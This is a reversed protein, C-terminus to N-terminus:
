ILQPFPDVALIESLNAVTFVRGDTDRVVPGLADRSRRWGLGSLVGFVPVGGLRIAEARLSRFRSAKDRATGGDNAKKCELIARLSDRTDYVVFDPAPRVTLGFRRGIEDQNDSGTRIYLISNLKFIEEVADELVDGRRSGTADLLQRFAGGYHRQHLYVPFPVGDSAFERVSTWGKCTDPKQLRSRIDSGIHPFLSGSMAGNVIRACAYAINSTAPKGEELGKIRGEGIKPDGAYNIMQSAAAFEQRTFGIILRFILLTTSDLTIANAVIDDGMQAFGNTLEFAKDYARKVVPLEYEDRWHIYGFDPRLYPSYCKTAIAAYIDAHRSVGYNEPITRIINIRAPWPADAVEDAVTRDKPM